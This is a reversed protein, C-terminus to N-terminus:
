PSVVRKHHKGGSFPLTVQRIGLWRNHELMNNECQFTCCATEWIVSGSTLVLNLTITVSSDRCSRAIPAAAVTIQTGEVSCLCVPLRSARLDIGRELIDSILGHEVPLIM